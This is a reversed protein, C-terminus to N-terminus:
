APRSPPHRKAAPLDGALLREILEVVGGGAGGELVVAAHQKLTDEADAVAAGCGAYRLMPEDNSANGVGVLEEPSLSLEELAATLGSEKDVGAPLVMVEEGNYIVRWDLGLERIVEAVTSDHPKKTSVIVEGLSLPDVGRKRLHPVFTPPPPDALPRAEKTVPSYLIAGNEGVVLDFLEIHPFEALQEKRQGTALILKRGAARMRGLATITAKTLNKGRMLTGDGDTALASYSTGNRNSTM